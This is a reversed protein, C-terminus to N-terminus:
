RVKIKLKATKGSASRVTITATGKKKAKVKGSASVTAVKKNSTKYSLKDNATLPTRTYKISFSKGKKLEVYTKKLKIKKTAVKGSQVKIKCSAKAGKQSTVTIVATGKKLATLKGTRRDVKVVKSNSSKWVKISDGAQLSTVKLAKTSKKVQMPLSTVNLSIKYSAATTQKGKVTVQCSALVKTGYSLTIQATGAGKATIYAQDAGGVEIISAVATNSSNWKLEDTPVSAPYITATLKKRKGIDMTLSGPTLYASLPISTYSGDKRYATASLQPVFFPTYSSSTFRGVALHNQGVTESYLGPTQYGALFHTMRPTSTGMDDWTCDVLYWNGDEMQVYNWIHDMQVEGDIMDSGGPVLICAIGKKQCLLKFLRAYCDCVGKHGYKGLLGGTITHYAMRDDTPYVVLRIVEEYAKKVVEYRSNGTVKQELRSLEEDTLNMESRIDSYYDTFWMQIKSIRNSTGNPTWRYGYIWYNENYDFLFADISKGVESCLTRYAASQTGDTEPLVVTKALTIEISQYRSNAEKIRNQQQAAILETYVAQENATELQGGYYAAVGNRYLKLTNESSDDQWSDEETKAKPQLGGNAFIGDQGEVPWDEAQANGMSSLMVLLLGVLVCIHLVRWKWKKQTHYSKSKKVTKGKKRLLRNRLDRDPKLRDCANLIKWM